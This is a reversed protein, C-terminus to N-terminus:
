KQSYEVELELDGSFNYTGGPFNRFLTVEAFFEDDELFKKANFYNSSFEIERVGDSIGSIFAIKEKGSGDKKIFHLEAFDFEDFLQTGSVKLKFSKFDLKNVKRIDFSQGADTIFKQWESKKIVTRATQYKDGAPISFNLNNFKLLIKIPDKTCSQLAAVLTLVMAFLSLSLIKKM